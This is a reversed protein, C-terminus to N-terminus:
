ITWSKRVHVNKHFVKIMFIINCKINHRYCKNKNYYTCHAIYKAYNCSTLDYIKFGNWCCVFFFTGRLATKKCTIDICVGYKKTTAKCHWVNTVTLCVWCLGKRHLAFSQVYFHMLIRLTVFFLFFLVSGVVGEPYLLM